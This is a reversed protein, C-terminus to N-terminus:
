SKLLMLLRYDTCKPIEGIRARAIADGRLGHLDLISEARQGPIIAVIVIVRLLVVFDLDSHHVGDLFRRQVLQLLLVLRYIFGLTSEFDFQLDLVKQPANSM